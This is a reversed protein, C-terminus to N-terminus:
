KSSSDYKKISISSIIVSIEYLLFIPLGILIQSFIDPPTLISALILIIVFSHRRYQRLKGPSILEFKTLGYIILPLQFLIGSTIVVTVVTKIFSIFHINNEISGSVAYTSLFNISFPVIVYYGFIVGLIFLLFSTVFLFVTTIKESRYLPLFVKINQQELEQAAKREQRFKTQLLYWHFNSKPNDQTM